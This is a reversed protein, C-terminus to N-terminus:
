RRIVRRAEAAVARGTRAALDAPSRALMARRRQTARVRLIVLATGATATVPRMWNRPDRMASLEWGELEGVALETLEVLTLELRSSLGDPPDIPRLARSLLTEIDAGPTSM